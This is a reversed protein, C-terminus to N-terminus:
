KRAYKYHRWTQNCVLPYSERTKLHVSSAADNAKELKVIVESGVILLITCETPSQPFWFDTVGLNSNKLVTAFSDAALTDSAKWTADHQYYTTDWSISLSSNPVIELQYDVEIIPETTKSCSALIVLAMVALSTKM